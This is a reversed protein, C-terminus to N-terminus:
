QSQPLESQSKARLLTVDGLVDQLFSHCICSVSFRLDLQSWRLFGVKFFATGDYTGEEVAKKFTAVTQPVLGGYLGALGLYDRTEIQSTRTKFHGLLVAWLGCHAM